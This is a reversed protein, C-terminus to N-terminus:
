RFDFKGYFEKVFLEIEEQNGLAWMKKIPLTMIKKGSKVLINYIPTVYFENKVALNKEIMEDASKVFDSGHRFYHVGVSAITSIPIKEASQIVYGDKDLKVYSASTSYMPESFVMVCADIPSTRVIKNFQEPDWELYHDTDSIVLEDNNDILDRAQLITDVTGKTDHNISVVTCDPVIKELKKDISYKAIHEKKCCFVYKIASYLQLLGNLQQKVLYM